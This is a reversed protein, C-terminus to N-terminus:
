RRHRLEQGPPRRLLLSGFVRRLTVGEARSRASSLGPSAVADDTRLPTHSPLHSAACRPLLIRSPERKSFGSRSLVTPFGPEGSKRPSRAHVM